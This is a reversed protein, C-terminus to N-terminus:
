DMQNENKIDGKAEKILADVRAQAAKLEHYATEEFIKNAALYQEQKYKLDEVAQRLEEDM